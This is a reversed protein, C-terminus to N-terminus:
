TSIVEYRTWAIDDEWVKVSYGDLKFPALVPEIQQSIIRSLHEISPNLGHFADLDNLIAGRYTNIIKEFDKTLADIDVLFGHEDLRSRQIEIQIRYEHSHLDNEPGWDGGILFHRATLDRWIALTQSANQM